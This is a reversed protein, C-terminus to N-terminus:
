FEYVNEGQPVPPTKLSCIRAYAQAMAANYYPLVFWTGIGLCMAGLIFWGIFSLELVFLDWKHGKTLQKTAAFAEQLEMEPFEALLYPIMAYEYGKVLAPVLAPFLTLLGFMLLLVGAYVDMMTMVIGVIFCVMPVLAVLGWLFLYIYRRFMVKCVNKYNNQFGYILDKFSGEGRTLNVFFRAGGVEFPGIVFYTLVLSSAFIAAVVILVVLAVIIWVPSSFFSEFETLLEDGLSYGYDYGYDYGYNYGNTVFDTNFNLSFSGGQGTLLGVIVSVALAIWYHGKLDNKARQKIGIRDFM